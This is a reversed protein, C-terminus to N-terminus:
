KFCKSQVTCSTFAYPSEKMQPLQHDHRNHVKFPPPPPNGPPPLSVPTQAKALQSKIWTENRIDYM